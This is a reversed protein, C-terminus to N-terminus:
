KEQQKNTNVQQSAQVIRSFGDPPYQRNWFKRFKRWQRGSMNGLKRRLTREPNRYHQYESSPIFNFGVLREARTSPPFKVVPDRKRWDRKWPSLFWVGFMFTLAMALFM